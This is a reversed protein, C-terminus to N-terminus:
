QSYPVSTVPISPSLSAEAIGLMMSERFSQMDEQKFDMKADRAAYEAYKLAFVGCDFGNQQQPLNADHQLNWEGPDLRRNKKNEMEEALYTGLITLCDDNRGGLSDLYKIVKTRFDIIAMCWHNTTHVPILLIDHAFVDVSRTWKSVEAYGHRKYCLLFFTSFAYVKPLEPIDTCRKVILNLYANMIVDSLWSTGALTRLDYESVALGSVPVKEVLGLIGGSADEIKRKKGDSSPEHTSTPEDPLSEIFRWPYSSKAYTHDGMMSMDIKSDERPFRSSQEKLWTELMPDMTEGQEMVTLMHNKKGVKYKVRDIFELASIEGQTLLEWSTSMRLKNWKTAKDPRSLIHKVGRSDIMKDVVVDQAMETMTALLSWTPGHPGTKRLLKGNNAEVDNNTRQRLGFVSLDQPGVRRLWHSEVYDLFGPFGIHVNRARAALVEYTPEILEPPLLPLSLFGLFHSLITGPKRIERGVGSTSQRARKVLSQSFHFHCGYLHVNPFESRVAKRMAPDWDGMYSTPTLEPVADKLQQFVWKYAEADSRNMFAFAVIGIMSGWNGHITFLQKCILKPCVKYTADAHIIRATILLRLLSVTTVILTDHESNFFPILKEGDQTVNFKPYSKESLEKFLQRLTDPRPPRM